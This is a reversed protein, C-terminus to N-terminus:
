NGYGNLEPHNTNIFKNIVEECDNKVDPPVSFAGAEGTYWRSFLVWNHCAMPLDVGYVNSVVWPNRDWSFRSAVKASPIRLKIFRSLLRCIYIDEFDIYCKDTNKPLRKNFLEEGYKKYIDKYRGGTDLAECLTKNNRLSFGGNGVYNLLGCNPGWDSNTAMIPSGIFDYGLKVWYPLEDRFLYCDLQFIYSYEYGLDYFTKYFNSTLLLKSYASVSTFFEDSFSIFRSADLSINFVEKIYTNFDTILAERNHVPLIVYLPYKLEGDYLITKILSSISFKDCANLPKYVPVIINFDTKSYRDQM